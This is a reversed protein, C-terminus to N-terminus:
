IKDQYDCELFLPKVQVVEDHEEQRVKVGSNLSKLDRKVTDLAERCTKARGSELVRIM